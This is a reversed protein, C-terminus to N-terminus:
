AGPEWLPEDVGAAANAARAAIFLLDSLRNLYRLASPNVGLEDHAALADREARRCAARAVHLCAAAETGGPLVFSTLEGLPENLDDCLQELEEVQDDRIRTRRKGDDAFPVALDAASTSSSTRSAACRSRM